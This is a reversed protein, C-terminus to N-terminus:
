GLRARLTDLETWLVAPVKDGVKNLWEEILPLEAKWEELDVELAKEVAEPSIDLGDLDM